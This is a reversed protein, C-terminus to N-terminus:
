YLHGSKLSCGGLTELQVGIIFRCQIHRQFDTLQFVDHDDARIFQQQFAIGRRTALYNLITAHRLQRKVAAVRYHQRRKRRAYLEVSVRLEGPWEIVAVVRLERDITTNLTVVFEQEVACRVVGNGVSVSRARAAAVVDGVNRRDIGRLFEFHLRARIVRLKAASTTTHNVDRGLAATVLPMASRVFEGAAILQFSIEKLIVSPVNRSEGYIWVRM